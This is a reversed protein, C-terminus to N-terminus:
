YLTQSIYYVIGGVGGDGDSGVKKWIEIIGGININIFFYFHL